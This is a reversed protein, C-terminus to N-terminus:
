ELWTPKVPVELTKTVDLWALYWTNLENKQEVTLTDYWLQGRNVMNFCEIERRARLEALKAADLTNAKLTEDLVIKGDKFVSFFLDENEEVDDVEIFECNDDTPEGVLTYGVIRKTKKDVHLKM